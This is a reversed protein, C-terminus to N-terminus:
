RTSPWRASAPADSRARPRRCRRGPSRPRGARAAASASAARGPPSTRPRRGPARRPSRGPARLASRASPRRPPVRSRAPRRQVSPSVLASSAAPAPAPMAAANLAGIAPTGTRPRPAAARPARCNGPSGHRASRRRRRSAPSRLRTAPTPGSSRSGIAAGGSAASDPRDDPEAYQQAGGADQEVAEHQRREVQERAPRAPGAPRQDSVSDRPRSRAGTGPVPRWRRRRASRRRQHALM